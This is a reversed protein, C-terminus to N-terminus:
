EMVLRFSNIDNELETYNIDSDSPVIFLAQRGCVEIRNVYKEVFHYHPRNVYDDFLIRTGENAYKLSTLFCCVRFRGDVLVTDPKKEQFWLYEVYKKFYDRYKYNIPRGWEGIEGVFEHHLNVIQEDFKETSSVFKVWEASSDVSIIPTNTNRIIWRTSQGCGYEGYCTADKVIRKFLGDDGDFLKDNIYSISYIKKAIGLILPPVLLKTLKKFM